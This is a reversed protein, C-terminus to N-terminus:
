RSSPVTFCEVKSPSASFTPATHHVEDVGVDEDLRLVAIVGEVDCRAEPRPEVVRVHLARYEADFCDTFLEATSVVFEGLPSLLVAPEEIQDVLLWMM